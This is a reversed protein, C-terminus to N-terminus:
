GCYHLLNGLLTFKELFLVNEGLILVSMKLESMFQYKKERVFIMDKDVKWSKRTDISLDIKNNLESNTLKEKWDIGAELTGFQALKNSTSLVLGSLM